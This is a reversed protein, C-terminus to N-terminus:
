VNAHIISRLIYKGQLTQDTLDECLEIVLTLAKACEDIDKIEGLLSARSNLALVENKKDDLRKYVGAADGFYDAAKTIEGIVSCGVALKNLTEAQMEQNNQATYELLATEYCEIASQLKSLADYALGLNYHLDAYNACGDSEKDPPVAKKLYELGKKAEGQAVYCAGLNFFCARETYGEKIHSALAAAQEFAACANDIHGDSLSRHGDQTLRDVEEHINSGM